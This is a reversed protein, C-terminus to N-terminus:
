ETVMPMVMQLVMPLTVEVCSGHVTTRMAPERHAAEAHRMAPKMAPKMAPRAAAVTTASPVSNGGPNEVAFGNGYIPWHIVALIEFSKVIHTM